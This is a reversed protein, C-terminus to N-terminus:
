ALVDRPRDKHIQIRARDVLDARAVVSLQEMGLQEDTSLLVRRIIIRSTMIRNPLLNQIPRQVLDPPDQHTEGTEKLGKFATTNINDLIVAGGELAKQNEM